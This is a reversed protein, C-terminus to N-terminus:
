RFSRFIVSGNAEDCKRVMGRPSIGPKNELIALPFFWEMQNGLAVVTKEWVFPFRELVTSNWKASIRM